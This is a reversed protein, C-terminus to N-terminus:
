FFYYFMGSTSCISIELIEDDINFALIGNTPNPLIEINKNQTSQENINLIQSGNMTKLITGDEGVIWGLDDNYFFHM